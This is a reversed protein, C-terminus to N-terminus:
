ITELNMSPNLLMGVASQSTPFHLHVYSARLHGHAFGERRTSGLRKRRVNWLNASGAEAQWRSYHFEHGHFEAGDSGELGTCACYGFQHLRGTMEVAGPIAGAMPYRSGDLAILEEALLMLGGCEAYCPMGAEIASRIGSRMRQNQSLADAFVEPFGGGFVLGDIDQPLSAEHIPSFEVLEAGAGRLYDLNSEYYFHFAEDRAIGIRCQSPPLPLPDSAAPAPSLMAMIRPLDLHRGALRALEGRAPLSREQSAQLGLHREPWALEECVSIAGLVPLGLPAIAERLYDAHSGGGVENLIVGAIRGEGAEAIFGRIAAALSRGSKASPVILVVPWDLIRALEITSGEDSRVDSGDFLVMVGEVIGIKGAGHLAAERAIGDAGMLWADLNRSPTGAYRAHYAPDIFDPGAKFPQVPMGREALAALLMCTVATKGSSSHMGALILGSSPNCSRGHM